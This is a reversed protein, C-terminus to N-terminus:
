RAPRPSPSASEVQNAAGIAAAPVRGGMAGQDCQGTTTRDNVNWTNTGCPQECAGFAEGTRKSVNDPKRSPAPKVVARVLVLGATGHQRGEFGPLQARAPHLVPAPKLPLDLTLGAATVDTDRRVLPPSPSAPLRSRERARRLSAWAPRNDLSLPGDTRRAWSLSAPLNDCRSRRM